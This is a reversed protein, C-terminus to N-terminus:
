SDSDGSDPRKTPTSRGTTRKFKERVAQEVIETRSVNFHEALEDLMAVVQDNLRYHKLTKRSAVRASRPPAIVPM